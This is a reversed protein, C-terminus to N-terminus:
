WGVGSGMEARGQSGYLVSLDVLPILLVPSGGVALGVGRRVLDNVQWIHSATSRAPLPFSNTTQHEARNVWTSITAAARKRRAIPGGLSDGFASEKGANSCIKKSM